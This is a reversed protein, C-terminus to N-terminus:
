GCEDVLKPISDHDQVKHEATFIKLDKFHSIKIDRQRLNSLIIVITSVEEHEIRTVQATKVEM